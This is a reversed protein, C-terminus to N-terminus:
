RIKLLENLIIDAVEEVSHKSTDIVVVPVGIQQWKMAANIACHQRRIITKKLKGGSRESLRQNLCQIPSVLLVILQRDAAFAANTLNIGISNLYSGECFIINSSKLGDIVVSELESTKLADVGGYKGGDEYKGAFCVSEDNCITVSRSSSKIGGFRKILERATSTKGSANTGMIIVCVNM